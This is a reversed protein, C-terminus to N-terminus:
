AGDLNDTAGPEAAEEAALWKRYFRIFDDFESSGKKEEISFMPHGGSAYAVFYRKKPSFLSAAIMVGVTLVIGTWMLAGSREIQVSLLIIGLFVAMAIIQITSTVVKDRQEVWAIAPSLATRPIIHRSRGRLLRDESITIADGDITFDISAGLRKTTFKMGQRVIFSLCRAESSRFSSDERIRQAYGLNDTAGPEGGEEVPGGHFDNTSACCVRNTIRERYGTRLDVADTCGERCFGASHQWQQDHDIRRYRTWEQGCLGSRCTAGYSGGEEGADPVVARRIDEGDTIRLM